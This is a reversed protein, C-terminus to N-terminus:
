LSDIFEQLQDCKKELASIEGAAPSPDNPLPDNYRNIVARYLSIYQRAVREAVGAVHPREKGQIRDILNDVREQIATEDLSCFGGLSAGVRHIHRGFPRYVVRGDPYTYSSPFFNEYFLDEDDRLDQGYLGPGALPKFDDWNVGNAMAYFAQVFAPYQYLSEVLDTEATLIGLDYIVPIRRTENHGGGWYWHGEWPMRQYRWDNDLLSCAASLRYPGLAALLPFERQLSASGRRAGHSLTMLDYMDPDIAAGYPLPGRVVPLDLRGDDLETIASDGGAGSNASRPWDQAPPLDSMGRPWRTAWLANRAVTLARVKWAAVTGFNLMLAMVSLLLPTCLVMELTSLGRPRRYGRWETNYGRCETVPSPGGRLTPGVDARRQSPTMVRRM